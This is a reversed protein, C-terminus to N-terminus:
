GLVSAIWSKLAAETKFGISTGVQCCDKFAIITPFSRVGYRNALTTFTSSGEQVKLYLIDTSENGIKSFIPLLRKCPGCWQAWFDVVVKSNEKLLTDFQSVSSIEVLRASGALASTTAAFAAILLLKKM